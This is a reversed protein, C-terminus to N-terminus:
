RLKAALVAFALIPLVKQRKIRSPQVILRYLWEASCRQWIQPARKVTGATTDLTVDPFHIEPFLRYSATEAQLCNGPDIRPLRHSFEPTARFLM